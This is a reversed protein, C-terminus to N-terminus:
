KVDRQYYFRGRAWRDAYAQAIALTKHTSYRRGGAHRGQKVLRFWFGVTAPSGTPQWSEIRCIFNSPQLQDDLEQDWVTETVTPFEGMWTHLQRGQHPHAGLHRWTVVARTKNM